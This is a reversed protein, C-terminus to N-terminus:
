GAAYGPLGNGYTRTASKVDDSEGVSLVRARDVNVNVM